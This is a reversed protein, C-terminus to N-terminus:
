AGDAPAPPPQNAPTAPPEPQPSDDGEEGAPKSAPVPVGAGGAATVMINRLIEYATQPAYGDCGYCAYGVLGGTLDERSYVVGQRNGAVTVGRMQGEKAGGLRSRTQRRYKFDKIEKAAYVPSNVPLRKISSAGFMEGILGEASQAFARSGGAADVLLLGGGEVFKKLAERDAESVQLANTGTMAAVAAGSAPLDKMESVSMELGVGVEQALLRGLREYALPEPDWNGAYKVRAVKVKKSPEGAPPEPWLSVGRPRISDKDKLDPKDTAYLFVNEAAQYAWEETKDQRVQWPLSMDEEVHIALPRIGNSVAHFKPKGKLPFLM